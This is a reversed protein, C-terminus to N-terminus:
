KTSNPSTALQRAYRCLVRNVANSLSQALKGKIVSNQFFPLEDILAQWPHLIAETAPYRSFAEAFQHLLESKLQQIVIDPNNRNEPLTKLLHQQLKEAIDPYSSAYGQYIEYRNHLIRAPIANENETNLPGVRDFLHYQLAEPLKGSYRSLVRLAHQQVALNNERCVSSVMVNLQNPTLREAVPALLFLFSRNPDTKQQALKAAISHITADNLKSLGEGMYEISLLFRVLNIKKDDLLKFLQNTIIHCGQPSFARSGRALERWVIAEKGEERYFHPLALLDAEYEGPFSSSSTVLNRLFKPNLKKERLAYNFLWAQESDTLSPVHKALRVTAEFLELQESINQSHRSRLKIFGILQRQVTPYLHPLHRCLTQILSLHPETDPKSFINNVLITQDDQSLFELAHHYSLVEIQNSQQITFGAQRDINQFLRQLQTTATIPTDALGPALQQATLDDALAQILSDQYLFCSKVVRCSKVLDLLKNNTSVFSRINKTAAIGRPDSALWAVILLYIDEHLNNTHVPSHNVSTNNVPRLM